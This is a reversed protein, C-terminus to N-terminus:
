LWEAVTLQEIAQRLVPDVNTYVDNTLQPTSHELLRQTVATSVGRQALLSAFTKRLDTLGAMGEDYIYFMRGGGSVLANLSPNFEHSRSWLPGAVWRIHKDAELIERIRDLHPGIKPKHPVQTRQYGPPSAHRLIKELTRWHMGTERLIQRKSIGERLLRQRIQLWQEMNRYV